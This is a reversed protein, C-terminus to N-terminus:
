YLLLLFLAISFVYNPVYSMSQQMIRNNIRQMYALDFLVVYFNIILKKISRPNIEALYCSIQLAM